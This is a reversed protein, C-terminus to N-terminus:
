SLADLRYGAGRVTLIMGAAQQLRNRLRMVLTDVARDLVDDEDRWVAEVVDARSVVKGARQMLISLLDFERATLRVESDDVWVQHADYDVRLPGISHRSSRDPRHMRKLIARIRLMLERANFPKGVFDVAGLEFAVIRDIEDDRASLVMFPIHRMSPAESMKRAVETGPMDPLMLDLVVLDPQVNNAKDLAEAADAAGVVAHGEM